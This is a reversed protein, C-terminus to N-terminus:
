VEQHIEKGDIGGLLAVLRTTDEFLEYPCENDFMGLRFRAEFLKEVAATITDKTQIFNWIERNLLLCCTYYKGDYVRRAFAEYFIARERLLLYVNLLFLSRPAYCGNVSVRFISIM